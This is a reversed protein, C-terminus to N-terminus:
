LFKMWAEFHLVGFLQILDDNFELSASDPYDHLFYTADAFNDKTVYVEDEATQAMSPLFCLVSLTATTLWSKIQIM